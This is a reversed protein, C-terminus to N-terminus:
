IVPAYQMHNELLCINRKKWRGRNKCPNTTPVAALKLVQLNYNLAQLKKVQEYPYLERHNNYYLSTKGSATYV